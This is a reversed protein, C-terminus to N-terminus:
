HPTFLGRARAWARTIFSTGTRGRPEVVTAPEERSRGGERSAASPAEPEAPLRSLDREVLALKQRREALSADATSQVWSGIEEATALRTSKELELAMERASSFRLTQNRDLGRLAIADLGPPVDPRRSSPPPVPQTLVHTL